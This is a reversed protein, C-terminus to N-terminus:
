GPQQTCRHFPSVRILTFRALPQDRGHSIDFFLGQNITTMRESTHVGLGVSNQLALQFHIRVECTVKCLSKERLWTTIRNHHPKRRNWSVDQIITYRRRPSQRYLDDAHFALPEFSRFPIDCLVKHQDITWGEACGIWFLEM